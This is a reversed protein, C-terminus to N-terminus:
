PGSELDAAASAAEDRSELAAFVQDRNEATERRVVFLQSTCFEVPKGTSSMHRLQVPFGPDAFLMVKRRHIKCIVTLEASDPTTAPKTV